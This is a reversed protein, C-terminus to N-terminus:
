PHDPIEEVQGPPHWPTSFVVNQVVNWKKYVYRKIQGTNDLTSSKRHPLTNYVSKIRSLMTFLCLTSATFNCFNDGPEDTNRNASSTEANTDRQDLDSSSEEDKLLLMGVTKRALSEEVALLVEEEDQSDKM